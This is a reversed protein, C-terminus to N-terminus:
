HEMDVDYEDFNFGTASPGDFGDESDLGRFGDDDRGGFGRDLNEDRMQDYYRERLIPDVDLDEEDLWHDLDEQDFDDFDNFEDFEPEDHNFSNKSKKKDKEPNAMHMQGLQFDDIKDMKKDEM